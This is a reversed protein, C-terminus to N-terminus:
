CFENKGYLLVLEEILRGKFDRDANSSEHDIPTPVEM